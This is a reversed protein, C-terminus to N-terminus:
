DTTPAVVAISVAVDDAETSYNPASIRLIDPRHRNSPGDGIAGGVPPRGLAWERTAHFCRLRWVTEITVARTSAAKAADGPQQRVPRRGGAIRRETVGEDVGGAGFGPM